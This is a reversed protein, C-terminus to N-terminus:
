RPTEAQGEIESEQNRQGFVPMSPAAVCNSALEVVVMSELNQVCAVM